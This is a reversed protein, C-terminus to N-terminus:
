GRSTLEPLHRRIMSPIDQLDTSTIIGMRDLDASVDVPLEGGLNQNLKGGMIVLANAQSQRMAATLNKAYELAKGNHTTLVVVQPHFESIAEVLLETSEVSPGLNVLEAGCARLLNLIILLAYEHVDTSAVLIKVRHLSVPQEQASKRVLDAALDLTKRTMDTELIPRRGKPYLEDKEGPGFLRELETAGLNRLAILLELPDHIDVGAGRLGTLASEFFRKGGQLIREALADVQAFNVAPLLRRAEREMQRAYVHAEVVEEPSPIRIPETKPVPAIAHATPNRLQGLIDLLACSASIAQNRELDETLDITDGYLVSGVTEGEHIRDLVTQWALRTMPDSTLGGFGHALKGGILKEIIFREIMAWGATAAYDTFLGGYGDDLYSHILSGRGKLAAMIGLAKVTEATRTILDTWHAYEFTFYQGLNGITTAGARLAMTTNLVSAPSGIVFDGFHPQIPAAQAIADWDDQKALVPGTGRPAKDRLEPPLGMVQNMCLGFRDIRIGRRAAENHLFRLGQVTAEVTDLGFQAHTSIRGKEKLRLKYELESEVGEETLFASKGIEIGKALEIGESLIDKGSPLGDPVLREINLDNRKLGCM